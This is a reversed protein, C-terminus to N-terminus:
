LFKWLDKSKKLVGDVAVYAGNWVGSKGEEFPGGLYTVPVLKVIESEFSQRMMKPRSSDVAGYTSVNGDFNFCRSDPTLRLQAHYDSLHPLLPSDFQPGSDTTNLGVESEFNSKNTPDQPSSNSPITGFSYNSYEDPNESTSKPFVSDDLSLIRTSLQSYYSALFHLLSIDFYIGRVFHNLITGKNASYDPSAFPNNTGPHLTTSLGDHTSITNDDNDANEDYLPTEIVKRVFVDRKHLKSVAYFLGAIYPTQIKKLLNKKDRDSLKISYYNSEVPEDEEVAEDYVSKKNPNLSYEEVAEIAAKWYKLFTKRPVELLSPHVKQNNEHVSSKKTEGIPSTTSKTVSTVVTATAGALSLNAGNVNKYSKSVPVPLEFIKCFYAIEYSLLIVSGHSHSTFCKLLLKMMEAAFYNYEEVSQELRKQIFYSGILPFSELSSKRRHKQYSPANINSNTPLLTNENDNENSPKSGSSKRRRYFVSKETGPSELIPVPDQTKIESDVKNSDSNSVTNNVNLPLVSAVPEPSSSQLNKRFPMLKSTNQDRLSRPVSSDDLDVNTQNYIHNDNIGLAATDDSVSDISNLANPPQSVQISPNKSYQAM